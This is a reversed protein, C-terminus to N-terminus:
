LRFLVSLNVSHCVPLCTFLCCLCLSRCVFLCFFLCFALHISLFTPPRGIKVGTWNQSTVYRTRASRAREKYLPWESKLKTNFHAIMPMSFAHSFIVRVGLLFKGRSEKLRRPLSEGLAYCLRTCSFLSAWPLVKGRGRTVERDHM